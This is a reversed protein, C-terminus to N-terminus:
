GVAEVRWSDIWRGTYASYEGGQCELTILDRGKGSLHVYDYNEGPIPAEPLVGEIGVCSARGLETIEVSHDGFRVTEGLKWRSRDPYDGPLEIEQQYAFDGEDVSIWRGEGAENVGWWEDWIGRAHELQLHGQMYLPEGNLLFSRGLQLLCPVDRMASVEFSARLREDEHVVLSRCSACVALRAFRLAAPLAAACSPCALTNGVM